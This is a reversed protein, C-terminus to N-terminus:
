SSAPSLEMSASAMVGGRVGREKRDGCLTWWTAGEELGRWWTAGEEVRTGEHLRWRFGKLGEIENWAECKLSPELSRFTFRASM